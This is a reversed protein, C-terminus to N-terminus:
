GVSCLLLLPSGPHPTPTQSYFAASMSPQWQNLPMLTSAAVCASVQFRGWAVLRLVVSQPTNDLDYSLTGADMDLKLTLISGPGFRSNKSSQESGNSYMAGPVFHVRSPTLPPRTHTPCPCTFTRAGNYARYCFWGSSSYSSSPSETCVGITTGEDGSKDATLECYWQAKGSSVGESARGWGVSTISRGGDDM